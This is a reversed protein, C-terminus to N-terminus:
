YRSRRRDHSHGREFTPEGYFDQHRYSRRSRLLPSKTFIDTALTREVGKELEQSQRLGVQKEPTPNVKETNDENGGGKGTNDSAPNSKVPYIKKLAKLIATAFFDNLVAMICNQIIKSFM